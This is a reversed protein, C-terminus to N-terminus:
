KLGQVQGLANSCPFLGQHETGGRTTHEPQQRHKWVLWASSSYSSQVSEINTQKGEERTKPFAPSSPVQCPNSQGQRVSDSQRYHAKKMERPPVWASVPCKNSLVAKAFDKKEDEHHPKEQLSLQTHQLRPLHSLQFM